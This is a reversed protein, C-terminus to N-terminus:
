LARVQERGFRTYQHDGQVRSLGHSHTELHAPATTVTMAASLCLGYVRSTTQTGERRQCWM